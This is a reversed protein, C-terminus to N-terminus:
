AAGYWRKTEPKQWYILMPISIPLCCMTIMTLAILVTALTHVWGKRGGFLTLLFPVLPVIGAITFFVGQFFGRSTSSGMSGSSIIPDLFSSVGAVILMVCLASMLGAYIRYYYVGEPPGESGGLQPGEGPPLGAPVYYHHNGM